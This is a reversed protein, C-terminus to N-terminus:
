PKGCTDVVAVTTWTFEERSFLVILDKYNDMTVLKAELLEQLQVWAVFDDDCAGKSCASSLTHAVPGCRAPVWPHTFSGWKSSAQM